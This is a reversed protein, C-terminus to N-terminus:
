GFFLKALLTSVVGALIGIVFGVSQDRFLKCLNFKEFDNVKRLDIMELAKKFEQAAEYYGKISAEPNKGVNTVENKRAALALSEAREYTKVFEHEPANSCFKRLNTDNVYKKTRNHFELWLMKASDLTARQLHGLAKSLNEERVSDDTKAVALHHLVAELEFAVQSPKDGVVVVLDAFIDKFAGQHLAYIEQEKM